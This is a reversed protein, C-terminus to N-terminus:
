ISLAFFFQASFYSGLILIEALVFQKKFKNIALVSDSFLFLLGGILVYLSKSDSFNAHRNCALWGMLSIVIIYLIVPIRLKDLNKSIFLYIFISFLLVPILIMVNYSSVDQIFAAAYILHAILFALLGLSLKINPLMLLVDGILSFILALIIIYKYLAVITPSSLLALCIILVMTLPKFVYHVYILKSYKGYITLVASLAILPIFIWLNM